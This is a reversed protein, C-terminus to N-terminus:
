RAASIDQTSPRCGAASGRDASSIERLNKQRMHSSILKRTAATVALKELGSPACWKLEDYGVPRPKGAIRADFLSASIRHHTITHSATARREGIRAAAGLKQRLAAALDGRAVQEGPLEWLGGLPGPPRRGMLVRGRREIWAYSAEERVTAARAKAAPLEEVTGEARARCAGALPCAGCRPGRPLCVTAGLEMLAENWEGPGDAPVLEAARARLEKVGRDRGDLRAIVRRVNGDVCPAAVGFALSLIAGATYDGIGPLARLGGYTGPLEAGALRAARHLNRARAYYGLGAWEEVVEQESAAALSELSPFRKLFREYRPVVAAVTTQQLMLESVWVRYPTRDARWPLIRAHARFWDIL